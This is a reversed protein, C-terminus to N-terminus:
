PVRITRLSMQIHRLEASDLDGVPRSLDHPLLGVPTDRRLARPHPFYRRRGFNQRKGTPTAHLITVSLNLNNRGDTAAALDSSKGM